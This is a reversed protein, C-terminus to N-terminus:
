KLEAPYFLAIPRVELSRAHCAGGIRRAAEHAEELTECRIIYFGLLQEKTEAFPGDLILAEGGTARLTTAATTPMLRVVPGLKGEAALEAQVREHNAILADLEKKPLAGVVAESDYILVSYLM